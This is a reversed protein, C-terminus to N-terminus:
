PENQAEKPNRLQDILTKDALILQVLEPDMHSPERHHRCSKSSSNIKQGRITTPKM